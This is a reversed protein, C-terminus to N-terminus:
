NSQGIDLARLAGLVDDHLKGNTAVIGRNRELGKGCSFDLPRGTCDTVCGGAAELLLSGAAHDWIREVYDRRTPLRLYIDAEGRAVVAYKAQSDLRVSPAAIGLADAVRVADSHASHASEVSECFRAWSCVTTSSVSLPKSIPVTQHAGRGRVAIFEAGVGADLNPCALGAFVVSGQEILAVAIAYQGGRLFGKTGDIPDLTWFRDGTGAADGYDIWQLVADATTDPRVKAVCRVVEACIEARDPVRLAAADEEAVIFDRPFAERIARCVLAQSGYDAVTVPSRDEKALTSVELESQVNKCLQSAEGLARKLTALEKAFAPGLDRM